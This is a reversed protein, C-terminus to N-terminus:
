IARAGKYINGQSSMMGLKYNAMKRNKGLDNILPLTQWACVTEFLLGRRFLERLGRHFAPSMLFGCAEGQFSLLAHTRLSEILFRIFLHLLSWPSLLYQYLRFCPLIHVCLNQPTDMSGRAKGRREWGESATQELLLVIRM